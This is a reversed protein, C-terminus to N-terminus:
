AQVTAPHGGYEFRLRMKDVKGAPTLPMKPVAIVEDPIWWSAVRHGLVGLLEGDDIPQKDRLEVIMVPREGWKEDVRGIVAVLSVQPLEGVISELEVPNIWEGGSKILDKTRGTIELYGEDDIRALDGTDFWGDGTVSEEQGFYREVVTPGRVRLHGEVNRQESLRRGGADTLLLDIGVAPRGSIHAKRERMGPPSCTGLPSLETMGWSTQVRAGLGRELREMLAPTIAAGGVLVRQLSPLTGGTSELHEVVNIWVTPVGVAITVGEAAILGALSAGDTLRAPLVLKAGAAATAFPLGWANAHFMPVVPLVVDEATIGLVNAQLLQLTHLYSSRHTYSVGKPTGTTGSTFCLGSPAEENFEGWAVPMDATDLLHELSATTDVTGAENSGPLVENGSLAEDIVLVQELPRSAQQIQRAVDLLDASVILVRAASQRAMTALQEVTLRPNLTHCIAGMGMIGYWAEVHGRTNWALTAVRHGTQIGLAALVSSVKQAREKLEGYGARDVRGKQQSTLVEVEPYWKAAHEIFKNLTLASRQMGGDIM